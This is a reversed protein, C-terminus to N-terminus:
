KVTLVMTTFHTTATVGNSSQGTVHLTFTGSPTPLNAPPGHHQYNYLPNCGTTGLLTVVGVLGLVSLRALWRRRRSAWALGALGFAGPFLIAWSIPGDGRHASPVLSATSGAMTNIVMSSTLASASTPLIEITGPTFTCSSQDPLGSCSVTVFMPASLATANVPTISAVVSGSQGATLSLSAPSVSVQFDPTGTAMAHVGAPQSASPLRTADGAYVARLLHDGGPLDLVVTAQGQADLAAGAFQRGHDEIVVAGTAPLGDNGIVTVAVTAQTRGGQDRTDATMTTQTAQSQQAAAALSMRPGASLAAAIGFIVALELRLNRRIKGRM